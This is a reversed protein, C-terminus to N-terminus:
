ANQDIREREVMLQIDLMERVIRRRADWYGLDVGTLVNRRIVNEVRSLEADFTGSDWGMFEIDRQTMTWLDDNHTENMQAGLENTTPSSFVFPPAFAGGGTENNDITTRTM